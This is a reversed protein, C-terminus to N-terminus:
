GSILISDDNVGGFYSQELRTHNEKKQQVCFLINQLIHTVLCAWPWMLKWLIYSFIIHCDIPGMLQKTVLM